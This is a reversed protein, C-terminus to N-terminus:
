SWYVDLSLSPDETVEGDEETEWHPTLVEPKCVVVRSQVLKGVHVLRTGLRQQAVKKVCLVNPILRLLMFLLGTTLQRPVGDSIPSITM